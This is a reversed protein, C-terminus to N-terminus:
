PKTIVEDEGLKRLARAIRRLLSLRPAPPSEPKERVVRARFLWQGRRNRRSRLRSM